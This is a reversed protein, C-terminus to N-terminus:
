VVSKRDRDIEAILGALLQALLMTKAANIGSYQAFIENDGVVRIAYGLSTRHLFLYIFFCAVLAVLIGVHIRTGPFIVPLKATPQLLLSALSSSEVERFHYNVLYISFFQVVYNLMISTVVESVSWKMRLLAPILAVVAGCIGGFLIAGVSYLPASLRWSIAAIMAGTIGIFFAGESIMSFLGSRFILIVALATFMLPAGAEIINGIRRLSTFPGIFFSRIAALPESSALFVILFVLALTIGIIVGVRALDVLFNIRKENM